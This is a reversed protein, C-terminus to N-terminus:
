YSRRTLRGLLARGFDRWGLAYRLINLSAARFVRDGLAKEVYAKLLTPPSLKYPAEELGERVRGCAELLIGLARLAGLDPSYAAVGLAFRHEGATM